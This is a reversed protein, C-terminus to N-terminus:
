RGTGISTASKKRTKKTANLITTVLSIAQDILSQERSRLAAGLEEWEREFEDRAERPPAIGLVRCVPMVLRSADTRGSEIHQITSQDAGIRRGLDAQTMGQRKREARM